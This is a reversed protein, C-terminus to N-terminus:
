QKEPTDPPTVDTEFWAGVKLDRWGGDEDDRQEYTHVKTADLTGYLRRGHREARIQKHVAMEDESDEVLEEEFRMVERGMQQTAKGMTQPSVRVLTLSEFLDTGKSFTMSAGVMGLLSELQAGIEGPRLGLREDLPFTEQHCESCVYYPRKYSIRGLVTLLKAERESHYAAKGGCRCAVTAPPHSETEIQVWAGLLFQGIKLVTERVRSEMDSLSRPSEGMLLQATMEQVYQVYEMGMREIGTM